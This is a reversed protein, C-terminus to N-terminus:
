SGGPVMVEGTFGPETGEVNDAETTVRQVPAPAPDLLVQVPM